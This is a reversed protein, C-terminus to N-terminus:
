AGLRRLLNRLRALADAPPVGGKSHLSARYSAVAMGLEYVRVHDAEVARGGFRAYAELLRQMGGAIQFPRRVGRTVIALDYAPDGRRAAM